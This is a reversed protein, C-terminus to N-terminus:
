SVQTFAVKHWHGIADIAVRMAAAEDGSLNPMNDACGLCETALEYIRNLAKDYRVEPPKTARVRERVDRTSLGERAAEDAIQAAQEPATGALGALEAYHSWTLERRRSAPPFRSAVFKANAATQADIGYESEIYQYVCEGWRFEGYLLLDGLWWQSNRGVRALNDVAVRWDEITPEGRVVLYCEEYGFADASGEAVTALPAREASAIVLAALDRRTEDDAPGDGRGNGNSKSM